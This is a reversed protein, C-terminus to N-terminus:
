ADNESFKIVYGTKTRVVQELEQLNVTYHCRWGDHESFFRNGTRTLYKRVVDMVLSELRFYERWKIRANLRNLKGSLPDVTALEPKIADWMKKIDKRLNITQTDQKIWALKAWDYDVLEHISKYARLTAGAFLGNIIHKATKPDVDLNQSVHERYQTKNLLYEQLYPTKHKLKHNLGCARQFLLTPAATEIDYDHRYGYQEFLATREDTAVRQLPHWLRDAKAEYRFTGTSLESDWKSKAWTHIRVRTPIRSVGIASELQSIGVENLVYQKNYNKREGNRTVKSDNFVFQYYQNSEILITNRIYKGLNNTQHGLMKDLYRTGWQHPKTTSVCARAWATASEIRKRVRPDKFNPTYTM